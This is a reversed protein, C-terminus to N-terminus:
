DGDTVGFGVTTGLAGAVDATFRRKIERIAAHAAVAPTPNSVVTTRLPPPVAALAAKAKGFDARLLDDGSARFERVAESLPLGKAGNWTCLYLAEIGELTAGIDDISADSIGSEVLDPHPVQPTVDLGLPKALRLAILVESANVLCNVLADIGQREATYVTSGRGARTLAGAYDGKGPLWADRVAEIKKQLDAAVLTAYTRRREGAAGEFKTAITAPGAAPDFLLAELGPFGRQNGGVSAVATADLTSTGALLAEIKTVDAPGSDIAGGTIALDDSPGFVFADTRKWAKRAARWADAAAKISAETPASAVATMATTLLGAKAAADEYLPVIVLTTTDVLIKQRDVPNSEARECGLGFGLLSAGAVSALAAGFLVQRRGIRGAKTSTRSTRHEKM